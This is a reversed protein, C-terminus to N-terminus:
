LGRTPTDTGGPDAATLSAGHTRDDVSVLFARLRRGDRRNPCATRPVRTNMKRRLCSPVAAAEDSMMARFSSRGREEDAYNVWYRSAAQAEVVPHTQFLHELALPAPPRPAPSVGRGSPEAQTRGPLQRRGRPAGQRGRTQPHPETKLSASRQCKLFCLAPRARPRPGPAREDEQAAEAGRQAAGPQGHGRPILFDRLRGAGPEALTDAFRGDRELLRRSFEMNALSASYMQYLGRLYVKSRSGKKDMQSTIQNEGLGPSRKGAAERAQFRSRGEMPRALPSKFPFSLPRKVFPKRLVKTSNEQVPLERLEAARPWRLCERHRSTECPIGAKNLGGQLRQLGEGAQANETPPHWVERRALWRETLGLGGSRPLQFPVRTPAVGTEFIHFDSGFAM